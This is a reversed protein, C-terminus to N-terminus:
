TTYLDPVSKITLGYDEGFNLKIRERVNSIGIGNFASIVQGSEVEHLRDTNMGAGNDTVLLRVQENEILGKIALTGQGELM